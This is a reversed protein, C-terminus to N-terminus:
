GKGFLEKFVPRFSEFEYRPEPEGKIIKVILVLDDAHNGIYEKDFYGRNEEKYNRPLDPSERYFMRILGYHQALMEKSITANNYQKVLEIFKEQTRPPNSIIFVEDKITVKEGSPLSSANIVSLAPLPHIQPPGSDLKASCAALLLLAALKWSTLAQLTKATM